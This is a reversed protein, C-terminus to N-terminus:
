ISHSHRPQDRPGPGSTGLGAWQLVISEIVLSCCLCLGMIKITKTWLLLGGVIDYQYCMEGLLCLLAERNKMSRRRDEQHYCTRICQIIDFKTSM